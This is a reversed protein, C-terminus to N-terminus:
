YYKWTIQENEQWACRQNNFASLGLLITTYSCHVCLIFDVSTFSFTLYFLKKPFMNYGDYYVNM